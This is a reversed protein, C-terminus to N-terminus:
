RILYHIIAGLGLLVAPPIISQIFFMWHNSTPITKYVQVMLAVTLAVGVAPVVKLVPAISFLPHVFWGWLISLIFGHVIISAVVVLVGFLLGALRTGVWPQQKQDESM